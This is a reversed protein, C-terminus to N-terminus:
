NWNGVKGGLKKIQNEVEYLRKKNRGNLIVSAGEKSMALATAKGIGRSSGTIIAVKNKLNSNKM